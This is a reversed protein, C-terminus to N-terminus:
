FSAEVGPGVTESRIAKPSIDPSTTVRKGDAVGSRTIFVLGVQGSGNGRTSISVLGSLRLIEVRTIDAMESRKLFNVIVTNERRKM